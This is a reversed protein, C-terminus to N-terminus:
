VHASLTVGDGIRAAVLYNGSAYSNDPAYANVWGARDLMERTYYAVVQMFRTDASISEATAPADVSAMPLLANNWTATKLVASTYSQVAQDLSSSDSIAAAPIRLLAPVLLLATAVIHASHNKM